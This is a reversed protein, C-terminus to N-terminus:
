RNPFLFQFIKPLRGAWAEENHGAGDDLYYQFDAGAVYGNECLAEYAMRTEQMNDTGFGPGSQTGSDLWIRLGQRLDKRLREVTELSGSKTRSLQFSPSIIAFNNAFEPAELAFHATFLGGMSSGCVATNEPGQLIRYHSNVYPQVDKIYYELTQDAKGLITKEAEEVTGSDGVKSRPSYSLYPPLYEEMRRSEGHGIGVIVCQRMLGKQALEDATFGAKWSGVFSDEVFSQFCNQGDHMYVVPYFLQPNEDYGSPLYVYLPREPLRGKFEPIKEVRLPSIGPNEKVSLQCRKNLEKEIVIPCHTM